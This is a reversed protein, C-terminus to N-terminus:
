WGKGGAVAAGAFGAAVAGGAVVAVGAGAVVGAGVAVAVVTTLTIVGGAIQELDEASLENLSEDDVVEKRFATLDDMTWDLGLAVAERMHGETDAMGLAKARARLEPETACRRAYEKLNEVSM